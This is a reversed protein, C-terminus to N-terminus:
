LNKGEKVFYKEYFNRSQKLTQLMREKDGEFVLKPNLKVTFDYQYKEQALRTLFSELPLLGNQLPAYPINKYV